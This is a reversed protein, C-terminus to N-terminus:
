PEGDDLGGGTPFKGSGSIKRKKMGKAYRELLTHLAKYRLFPPPATSACRPAAAAPPPPPPPPTGGEARGRTGPGYAARKNLRRM